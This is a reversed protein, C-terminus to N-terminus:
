RWIINAILPKEKKFTISSYLVMHMGFYLRWLRELQDISKQDGQVTQTEKWSNLQRNISELTYYQMWTEISFDKKDWKFLELCRESDDVRKQKQVALVIKHIKKNEPNVAYIKVFLRSQWTLAQRIIRTNFSLQRQGTDRIGYVWKEIYAM